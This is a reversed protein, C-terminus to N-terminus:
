NNFTATHQLQQVRMYSEALDLIADHYTKYHRLQRVLTGSSLNHFLSRENTWTISASEDLNSICSFWVFDYTTTPKLFLKFHDNPTESGDGEDVLEIEHTAVWRLGDALPDGLEECIDALVGLLMRDDPNQDIAKCLQSINTM